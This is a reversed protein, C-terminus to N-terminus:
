QRKLTFYGEQTNKVYIFAFSIFVNIICTVSSPLVPLFIKLALLIGNFRYLLFLPYVPIATLNLWILGLVGLWEFRCNRELLDRCLIKDRWIFIRVTSLHRLFTPPRHFRAFRVSLIQLCFSSLYYNWVRQLVRRCIIFCNLILVGIQRRYNQSLGVANAFPGFRIVHDHTIPAILPEVAVAEVYDQYTKRRRKLCKSYNVPELAQHSFTLLHSM